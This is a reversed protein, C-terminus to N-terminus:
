DRSWWGGRRWGVGEWGWISICLVSVCNELVIGLIGLMSVYNKVRVYVKKSESEVERAQACGSM